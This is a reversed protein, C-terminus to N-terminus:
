HSLLLPTEADEIMERTVGGFLTERFRSHSYGGMVILDAGIDEAKTLLTDSISQGASAITDVTVKAGNRALATAIDAGPEEGHGDGGVEPEVCALTVQDAQVLLPMADAVARAAERGSDWAVLINRALPKGGWRAPVMLMPRGSDFLGGELADLLAPDYAEEDPQGTLTLDAYRAHRAVQGAVSSAMESILRIDDSIGNAALRARARVAAAEIRAKSAEIEQVIFEAGSDLGTGYILTPPQAIALVTLHADLRRTLECATDIRADAAQSDEVVVLLNKM